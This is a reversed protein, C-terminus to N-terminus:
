TIRRNIINLLQRIEFGAAKHDFKAGSELAGGIVGLMKCHHQIDRIQARLQTVVLGRENLLSEYYGPTPTPTSM